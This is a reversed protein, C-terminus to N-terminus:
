GHARAGERSPDTAQDTTGAAAHLADERLRWAWLEEWPDIDPCAACWGHVRHAARWHGLPGTHDLPRGNPATDAV